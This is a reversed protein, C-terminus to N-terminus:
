SGTLSLSMATTAITPPTQTTSIVTSSVSAAWIANGAGSTVSDCVLVGIVTSTGATCAGWTLAGNNTAVSPTANTAANTWTGVTPAVRAYGTYSAETFSSGTSATSPATTSLAVGIAATATFTTKGVGADISKAMAFQTMGTLATPVGSEALAAEVDAWRTAELAALKFVDKLTGWYHDVLEYRGHFWRKGYETLKAPGEVQLYVPEFQETHM